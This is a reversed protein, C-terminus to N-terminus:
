SLSHGGHQIRLQLIHHFPWCHRCSLLHHMKGIDVEEVGVLGM